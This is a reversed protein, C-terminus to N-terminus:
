TIESGDVLAFWEWSNSATKRFFLSTLHSNGLSDYVTVGASFSSTGTPDNISFAGPVTSNSSLNLDMAVGNTPQPPVPTNSIHVDSVNSTIAGNDDVTFGQLRQGDANVMFGEKDLLFQGARSFFSSNDTSSKVVFFGSGDIALDTLST